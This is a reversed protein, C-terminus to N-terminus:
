HSKYKISPRDIIHGAEILRNRGFIAIARDIDISAGAANQHGGGMLAVALKSVDYGGGPNHRNSRFSLKFDSSLLMTFEVDHTTYLKESLDSILRNDNGSADLVLAKVRHGAYEISYATEALEAIRARKPALLREGLPSLDAILEDRSMQGWRAFKSWLEGKSQAKWRHHGIAENVERSYPLKWAWLDRDEVYKLVEPVPQIADPDAQAWAMVAASHHLDFDMSLRGIQRHFAQSFDGVNGLMEAATKHHDILKVEIGQNTWEILSDMPLSFDVIFVKSADKPLTVPDGYVAGILYSYPDRFKFEPNNQAIAWAAAIGDPCDTGIKIQHYVIYEAM